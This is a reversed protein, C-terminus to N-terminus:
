TTGPAAVPNYGRGIVYRESSDGRSAEPKRVVVRQFRARFRQLLDKASAGEFIKMVVGGGPRLTEAAMELASVVLEEARAEDRVKIGSLNPAMDSVVFDCAGGPLAAVVRRRVDPELFDGEIVTVGDLPRMPLLDVAIVRGDRGVVTALYQSWGGPAAGLDLITQGRRFLREGRDIQELKFSARSRRNQRRAAQTFPDKHQRDLWRQSSASRSKKRRM